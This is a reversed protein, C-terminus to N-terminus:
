RNGKLSEKKLYYLIEEQTQRNTRIMDAILGLIFVQFAIIALLATLVATPLYPTVMGTTLYHIFVRIGLVGAIAGLVLGIWAFVKLPKYLLYTRLITLGARRAYSFLSPILRSEDERKRFHVPVEVIKMGKRAAQIITEQVYTHDSRVNLRLVAERTFARFGTQADSVPFGSARRTIRTALKNGMRNGAPMEEIWGAFRSGLVVDARGELIPRILAPIESGYYQNDADINVIIDAGAALAADLGRKFTPALGRNEKNRLVWDAGAERAALNTRDTSGDDIVVVRVDDCCDRPIGGIVKAITREENYAPITVVLRM